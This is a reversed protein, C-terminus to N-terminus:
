FTLLDHASIGLLICAMRLALGLLATIVRFTGNMAGLFATNAAMGVALTFIAVIKFGADKGLMRLGYRIDQWLTEMM